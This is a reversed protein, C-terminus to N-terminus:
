YHQFTDEVVIAAGKQRNLASLFVAFVGRSKRENSRPRMYRKRSDDSFFELLFCPNCLGCLNNPTLKQTEFRRWKAFTRLRICRSKQHRKRMRFLNELVRELPALNAVGRYKAGIRHGFEADGIAFNCIWTELNVFVSVGAKSTLTDFRRSRWDFGQLVQGGESQNEFAHAIVNVVDIM